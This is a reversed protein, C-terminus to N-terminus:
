ETSTNKMTNTNTNPSRELRFASDTPLRRRRGSKNNKSQKNAKSQKAVATQDIAKKYM